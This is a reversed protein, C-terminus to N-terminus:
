PLRLRALAALITSFAHTSFADLGLGGGGSGGALYGFSYVHEPFRPPVRRVLGRLKGASRAAVHIRSVLEEGEVARRGVLQDVSGCVDGVVDPVLDRDLGPGVNKPGHDQFPVAPDPGVGRQEATDGEVHPQLLQLRISIKYGEAAVILVGHADIRPDRRPEESGGPSRICDLFNPVDDSVRGLEVPELLFVKPPVLDYSFQGVAVLADVPADPRDEGRGVGHVAYVVVPEIIMEGGDELPAVKLFHRLGVLSRDM